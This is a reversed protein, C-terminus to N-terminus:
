RNGSQRQRGLNDGSSVILVRPQGVIETFAGLENNQYYTDQEPAIQVVYRSFEQATAQLRVTFNNAGPRLQVPQDYVVSGASLLRLRAAM